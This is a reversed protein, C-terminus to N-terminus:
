YISYLYVTYIYLIFIAVVIDKKSKDFVAYNFV